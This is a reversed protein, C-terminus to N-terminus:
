GSDGDIFAVKAIDAKGGVAAMTLDNEGGARPLRSISVRVDLM